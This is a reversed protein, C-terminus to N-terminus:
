CLVILTWRPLHPVKRQQLNSLPRPTTWATPQPVTVRPLNSLTSRLPEPSGGSLVVIGFDQIQIPCVSVAGYDPVHAIGRIKKFQEGVSISVIQIEYLGYKM